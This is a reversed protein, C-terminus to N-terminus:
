HVNNNNNNNNNNDNSKDDKLELKEFRLSIKKTYIQLNAKAEIKQKYFLGIKVTGYLFLIFLFSLASLLYDTKVSFVTQRTKIGRISKFQVFLSIVM